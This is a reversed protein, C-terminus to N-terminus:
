RDWEQRVLGNGASSIAAVWGEVTLDAAGAGGEVGEIRGGNKVFVGLQWGLVEAEEEGDQALRTYECGKKEVVKEWHRVNDVGLQVGEPDGAATAAALFDGWQTLSSLAAAQEAHLTDLRRCLPCRPTLALRASTYTKPVPCGLHLRATDCPRIPMPRLHTCGPHLLIRMQCM